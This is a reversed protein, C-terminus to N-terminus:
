ITEEGTCLVHLRGDKDEVKLNRINSEKDPITVNLKHHYDDIEYILKSFMTASLIMQCPLDIRSAIIPFNPFILDGCKFLPIRYLTGKTLGGFGSFIQNFAIPVGGIAKLDAEDRVWVPLVAGTDLLADLYFFNDLIVTPRGIDKRLTLTFQKM